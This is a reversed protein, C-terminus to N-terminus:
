KYDHRGAKIDILTTVSVQAAKASSANGLKARASVGAAIAALRFLGLAM